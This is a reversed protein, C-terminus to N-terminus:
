PDVPRRSRSEDDGTPSKDPQARRSLLERTDPDGVVRHSDRRHRVRAGLGLDHNLGGVAPVPHDIQSLVVASPHVQGVGLPEVPPLPSHLVVLPVGDIQSVHQTQTAQGLGPDGRGRHPLQPLQNAIPGLEHRQTRPELGLHMHHHGFLPTSGAGPRINPGAPLAWSSAM